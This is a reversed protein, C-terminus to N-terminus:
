LTIFPVLGPTFNGIKKFTIFVVSIVKIVFWIERTINQLRPHVV